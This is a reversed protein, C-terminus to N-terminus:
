RHVVHQWRQKMEKLHPEVETAEVMEAAMEAAMQQKWTRNLRHCAATIASGSCKRLRMQQMEIQFHM